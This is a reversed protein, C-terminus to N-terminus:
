EKRFRKKVENKASVFAKRVATILKWDDQCVTIIKGPYELRLHVSYKQKGGKDYAKLHVIINLLNDIEYELKGAENEAIEQIAVMQPETLRIEKLGVFNVRFRKAPVDLEALKRLVNKATLLGFLKDGDMILLDHVRNKAMLSVAESLGTDPKALLLNQNTSFSSVPLSMIHQKDAEASKSSALKNFKSSVDRKPSWNLFKRIVDRFSIVGFIKGNELIPLEDVKELYMTRLAEGLTSKSTLSTPKVLKVDRIKVESAPVEAIALGALDLSSVVGVIKKDKEVPLYDLNTEAMLKVTELVDANELVVPSRELHNKVKAESTDLGSKLLGKKEVLGLYRGNEIVLATRKEYNKMLGIMESVTTEQDVTIFDNKVFNKIEM